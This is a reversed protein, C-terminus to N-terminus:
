LKSYVQQITSLTANQKPFRDSGEMSRFMNKLEAREDHALTNEKRKYNWWLACSAFLYTVNRIAGRDFHLVPNADLCM